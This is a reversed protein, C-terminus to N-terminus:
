VGGVDRLNFLGERYCFKACCQRIWCKHSLYFHFVHKIRLSVSFIFCFLAEINCWFICPYSYCKITWFCDLSWFTYKVLMYLVNKFQGFGVYKQLRCFSCNAELICTKTHYFNPAITTLYHYGELRFFILIQHGIFRNDSTFIDQVLCGM